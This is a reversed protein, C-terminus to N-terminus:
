DNECEEIVLNNSNQYGVRIPKISYANEIETELAGTKTVLTVRQITDYGLERVCDGVKLPNSACGTFALLILLYRM